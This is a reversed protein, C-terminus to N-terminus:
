EDRLLEEIQAELEARDANRFGEHRRILKGRRDFLLSTPMAELEFLKALSADQDFRVAFTPKMRRLFKEAQSRDRDLDIAVITLGREAYRNQLSQMWPFSKKCPACWSAWFDVYVVRGETELSDLVATRIESLGPDESREARAVGLGLPVFLFLLLALAIATGWLGFKTNM